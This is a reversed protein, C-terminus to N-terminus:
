GRHHLWLDVTFDSNRLTSHSELGRRLHCLLFRSSCKQRQNPGSISQPWRSDFEIPCRAGFHAAANGFKASTVWAPVKRVNETIKVNAM